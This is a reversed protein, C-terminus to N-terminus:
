IKGNVLDPSSGIKVIVLDLTRLDATFVDASAASGAAETLSRNV